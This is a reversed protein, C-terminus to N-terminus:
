QRPGEMCNHETREMIIHAISGDGRNSYLIRQKRDEILDIAAAKVCGAIIQQKALVGSVHLKAITFSWWFV